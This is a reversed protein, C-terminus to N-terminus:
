GASSTGASNDTGLSHEASPPTLRTSLVQKLPNPAILPALLAILTLLLILTLGVVTLPSRQWAPRRSRVTTVTIEAM